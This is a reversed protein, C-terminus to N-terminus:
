RAYPGEVRVREGDKDLKENVNIVTQARFSATQALSVALALLVSIGLRVPLSSVESKLLM